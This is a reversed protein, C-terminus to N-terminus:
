DCRLDSDAVPANSVFVFLRKRATRRTADPPVQCPSMSCRDGSRAPRV